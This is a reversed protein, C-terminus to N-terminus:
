ISFYAYEGFMYMGYMQLWEGLDVPGLPALREFQKLLQVSCSDVHEELQVLTSMSYANAV